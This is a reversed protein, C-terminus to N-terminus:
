SPLSMECQSSPNYMKALQLNLRWRRWGGELMVSYLTLKIPKEKQSIVEKSLTVWGQDHRMIILIKRDQTMQEEQKDFRCCSCSM